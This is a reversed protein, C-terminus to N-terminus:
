QSIGTWLKPANLIILWFDAHSSKFSFVGDNQIRLCTSFSVVEPAERQYVHDNLSAFGSLIAIQRLELVLNPLSDAAQVM